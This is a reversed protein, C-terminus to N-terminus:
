EEEQLQIVEKIQDYAFGKKALNALIKQKRKYQDDRRYRQWLRKVEKTLRQQEYEDDVQFECNAIVTQVVESHFGKNVLGQYVKQQQELKTHRRYKHLLKDCQHSANKEEIEIPYELLGEQIDKESVGKQKLKQAIVVPGKRGERRYTRVFSKAYNLDDILGVAKLREMVSTIDSLAFEDKKLYDWVEKETRWKYDLYYLAKQYILSQRNINQLANWEEETLERGKLLQFQVLTDESVLIKQQSKFGVLYQNDGKKEVQIVQDFVEM